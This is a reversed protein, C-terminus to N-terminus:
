ASPKPQNLMKRLNRLGRFLLGAVAAETRSLHAAIDRLPWEQLHHLRVVERQDDPLQLMADSLQILEEERIAHQSPSSVSSALGVVMRQSIRSLSEDLSVGRRVDRKQRRDFRFADQINNALIQRLWAVMNGTEGRFEARHIHAELLSRQVIDSADVVRRNQEALQIQAILILYSRYQDIGDEDICKDDKPDNM